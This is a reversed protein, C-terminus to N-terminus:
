EVKVTFSVTGSSAPAVQPILWRIKTADKSFTEQWKDNVYYNVISQQSHVISLKVNEPLVEIIVVNTAAVSGENTYTITYTLTGGPSIFRKDVEKHLIINAFPKVLFFVADASLQSSLSTAIITITGIPQENVTFTTSFSGAINTVVTTVTLHTGFDIRVVGSSGFGKGEVTVYTGIPGSTPSILIGPTPIAKFQYLPTYKEAENAYVELYGDNDADGVAVSYMAKEGYGLDTVDLQGERLRLQYIHKDASAVYLEIEGDNDGDGATLDNITESNGVKGLDTKIWIYGNWVFQWINHRYGAYLEPKNDKDLDAIVIHPINDGDGVEGIKICNWGGEDSSEYRYIYGSYNLSVYEKNGGYIELRGDNEMDGIAFSYAGQTIENKSWNGSDYRLETIESISLSIDGGTYLKQTGRNDGDGIVMMEPSSATFTALEKKIWLTSSGDYQFQWFRSDIVKPYYKRGSIAYVELIGNRDIDGVLVDKMSAGSTGIGVDRKNWIGENFKFQKISDESTMYVEPNGDLDGDGICIPECGSGYSTTGILRKEWKVPPEIKKHITFAAKLTFTAGNYPNRAVLDYLGPKAGALFFSCSLKNPAKMTINTASIDPFGSRKLRLEIGKVFNSGFVASMNIIGTNIGETPFINTLTPGMEPKIVFITRASLKTEMGSATITKTGAGFSSSVTFSCVFSGETDTLTTTLTKQTGFEIRILEKMGFGKGEVTLIINHPGEVPTPKIELKVKTFIAITTITSYIERATLTLLGEAQTDVTFYLCFTGTQSSYTTAITLHTGFDIRIARNQGFGEGEVRLPMGESGTEPIVKIVPSNVVQYGYLTGCVEICGDGNVDSVCVDEMVGAIGGVGIKSMEWLYGSYLFQYIIGDINASYLEQNGDNDGDGIDIGLVGKYGVVRKSWLGLSYKFQTIYEGNTIYLESLGDNDADGIAIDKVEGESFGLDNMLWLMGDFRFQYLHNGFGTYVELRGDNDGDGVKVTTMPLESKFILGKVWDGNYYKFQYLNKETVAYIEVWGDNDGDGVTIALIAGATYGMDSGIWRETHTGTRLYDHQYIHSSYQGGTDGYGYLELGGDEDGDGIAVDNYSSIAKKTEWTYFGGLDHYYTYVSKYVLSCSLLYLENQYNSDIDASIVKEKAVYTHGPLPIKKWIVPKPVGRVLCVRSKLMASERDTNSVSIDYLGTETGKFEFECIIYNPNILIVKSASIDKRGERSLKVWIGEKFNSGFIKITSTGPTICSSPIIETINVSDLLIHFIGTASISSYVGTTTVTKTGAPQADVTFIGSFRGEPSSISTAIAQHSGFDITIPENKGFGAGEIRCIAKARGSSPSLKIEATDISTFRYIYSDVNWAYVENKGDNDGDGVVVGRMNGEGSGVDRKIWLGGNYKFQYINANDVGYLENKGDNDGDGIALKGGWSKQYYVLDKTWTGKVYRHQYLSDDVWSYLENEGDNDADGLILHNVDKFNSTDWFRIDKSVWQGKEYKIQRLGISTGIYVENKGDNDGDGVVFGNGLLLVTSSTSIVTVKWEGDEYRLQDVSSGTFGSAYVENKGDNNGDGIVIAWVLRPNTPISQTIWKGDSFVRKWVSHTDWCGGLWLENKGDNDGDNVEVDLACSSSYLREETWLGNNYRFIGIYRSDMGGCLCLDNLGDNDADGITIKWAYAMGIIERRWHTSTGYDTLTSLSRHQSPYESVTLGETERELPLLSQVGRECCLGLSSLALNMGGLILGIQWLKQRTFM